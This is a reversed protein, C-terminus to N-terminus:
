IEYGNARLLEIAQANVLDELTAGDQASATKNLEDAIEQARALVLTDFASGEKKKGKAYALAGGGAATAALEPSLNKAVQGAAWARHGKGGKSFMIQAARGAQVHRGSHGAVNKMGALWKGADKVGATKEVEDANLGRLEAWASHAFVKGMYASAEFQDQSLGAEKTVDPEGSLEAIVAHLEDVTYDDFDVGTVDTGSAAAMKTIMEVSAAKELDEETIQAGVDGSLNGFMAALETDM